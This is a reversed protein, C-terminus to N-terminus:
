YITVKHSQAALHSLLDTTTIIGVLTENEIVPLAGIKYLMLKEATKYISTGPSITQPDATMCEAVTHEQLLAMRDATDKNILPSELALRVDRNTIIGVLRGNEVVPLQRHGQQNMLIIAHRLTHHPSVTDPNYSMLDRVTLM